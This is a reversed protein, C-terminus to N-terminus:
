THEIKLSCFRISLHTNRFLRQNVYHCCKTFVPKKTVRVHCLTNHSLLFKGFYSIDIIFRKKPICFTYKESINVITAAYWDQNKHTDSFLLLM